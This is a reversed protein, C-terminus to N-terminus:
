GGLDINTGPAPTAPVEVEPLHTLTSNGGSNSGPASGPPPTTSTPTTSTSPTTSSAPDAGNRELTSWLREYWPGQQTPDKGEAIADVSGLAAPRARQPDLVRFASEGPFVYALRERAQAQVYSPDDWRELEAQLGDVEAQAADRQAQLAHYEDQQQAFVRLSPWVLAFALAVVLALTLTRWSMVAALSGRGPAAAVRPVVRSTAGSHTVETPRSPPGVRRGTPRAVKGADGPARM